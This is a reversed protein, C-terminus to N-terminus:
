AVGSITNPRIKEETTFRGGCAQCERRRIAGERTDIVRSYPQGCFPCIVHPVGEPEDRRELSPLPPVLRLILLIRAHDPTLEV